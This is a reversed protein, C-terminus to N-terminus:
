TDYGHETVAGDPAVSRLIRSSVGDYINSSTGSPTTVSVPRGLFDHRTIRNTTWRNDERATEYDARCGDPSYDPFRETYLLGYETEWGGPRTARTVHGFYKVPTYRWDGSRILSIGPGGEDEPPFSVTEETESGLWRSTRTLTRLGRPDTTIRLDSTGRPYETVTVASPGTKQFDPVAASGPVLAATETANTERGLADLFHMTM